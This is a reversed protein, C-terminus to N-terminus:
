KSITFNSDSTDAYASNTASTVKIQYDSGSVQNSPIVLQAFNSGSGVSNFSTLTRNVIGGKLLEIKVNSGPNGGYSWRITQASGATM